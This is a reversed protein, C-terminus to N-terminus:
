HCPIRVLDYFVPEEQFEPDYFIDDTFQLVIQALDPCLQWWDLDYARDQLPVQLYGTAM